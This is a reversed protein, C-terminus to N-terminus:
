NCHANPPKVDFANLQTQQLKLANCLLYMEMTVLLTTSLNLEQDQNAMGEEIAVAGHQFIDQFPSSAKKGDILATYMSQAFCLERM